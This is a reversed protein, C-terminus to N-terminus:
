VALRFCEFLGIFNRRIEKGWYGAVHLDNALGTRVKWVKDVNRFNKM